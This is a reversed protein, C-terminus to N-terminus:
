KEQWYHKNEGPKSKLIKRSQIIAKCLAEEDKNKIIEVLNITDLSMHCPKIKLSPTVFIENSNFCARCIKPSGCGIEIVVGKTNKYKYWTIPLYDSQGRFSEEETLPECGLSELKKRLVRVPIVLHQHDRKIPELNLFKFKFNNEACLDLTGRLLVLSDNFGRIPVHKIEIKQNYKNGGLLRLNNQLEKFQRNTGGTIKQWTKLDTTHISIAIKTFRSLGNSILNNNLEIGNTHFFKNKFPLTNLFFLLEKLQPYLTPEGGTLSLTKLGSKTLTSILFKLSDLDIFTSNKQTQPMGENSCFFCRLNCFDTIAVRLPFNELIYKLNM